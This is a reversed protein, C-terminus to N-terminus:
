RSETPVREDVLNERFQQLWDRCIVCYEVEYNKTTKMKNTNETEAPEQLRNRRLEASMSGSRETAPNAKGM